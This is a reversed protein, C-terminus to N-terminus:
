ASPEGDIMTLAHQLEDRLRLDDAAALQIEHTLQQRYARWYKVTLESTDAPMERARSWIKQVDHHDRAGDILKKYGAEFRRALDYAREDSPHTWSGDRKRKAKEMANAVEAYCRAATAPSVAVDFDDSGAYAKISAQTLVWLSARQHAVDVWDKVSLARALLLNRQRIEDLVDAVTADNPLRPPGRPGSVVMEGSTTIARDVIQKLSAYSSWNIFSRENLVGQLERLFLREGDGETEAVGRFSLAQGVTALRAEMPDSRITEEDRCRSLERALRERRSILDTDGTPFYRRSIQIREDLRKISRELFGTYRDLTHEDLVSYRTTLRSGKDLTLYEYGQITKELARVSAEVLAERVPNDYSEEAM